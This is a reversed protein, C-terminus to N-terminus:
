AADGCCEMSVWGVDNAHGITTGEPYHKGCQACKGAYQAKIVVGVDVRDVRDYPYYDYGRCHGCQSVLLDSRDCRAEAM